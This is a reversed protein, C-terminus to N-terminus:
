YFNGCRVSDWMHIYIHPALMCNIPGVWFPGNEFTTCHTHIKKFFTYYAWNAFLFFLNLKSVFLTRWHRKERGKKSDLPCFWMAYWWSHESWEFFKKPTFFDEPTKKDCCWDFKRWCRRQSVSGAVGSGFCANPEIWQVRVKPYLINLWINYFIRCIRILRPNKYDLFKSSYGDM